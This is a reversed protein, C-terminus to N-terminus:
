SASDTFIIEADASGVASSGTQAIDCGQTDRCTIPELTSSDVGYRGWEAYPVLLLLTNYGSGTVTPEENAFVFTRFTNSTSTVTRGTGATVEIPLATSSTDFALPTVSSGASSATIRRIAFASLVGTVASTGNNFLYLLYARLVRTTGAANFIDLMSKGSAHAIGSSRAVWTAAM